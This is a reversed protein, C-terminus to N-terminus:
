GLESSNTKNESFHLHAKQVLQVLYGPNIDWERVDLEVLTFEEDRMAGIEVGKVNKDEMIRQVSKVHQWPIFGVHDQAISIGERSIRFQAEKKRLLSIRKQMPLNDNLKSPFFLIFLPVFLLGLSIAINQLDTPDDFFFKICLIGFLLLLVNWWLLKIGSYYIFREELLFNESEQIRKRLEVWKRHQKSNAIIIREFFFGLGRSTDEYLIMWAIAFAHLEVPDSVRSFAWIRWPMVTFMWWLCALILGLLFSIFLAAPESIGWDFELFEISYVVGGFVLGFLILAPIVVWILGIRAAYTPSITNGQKHSM